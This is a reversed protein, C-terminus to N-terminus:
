TSCACLGCACDWPSNLELLDNTNVTHLEGNMFAPVVLVFLCVVFFFLFLFSAYQKSVRWFVGYLWFEEERQYPFM